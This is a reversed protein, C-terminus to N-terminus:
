FIAHTPHLVGLLTMTGGDGLDVTVLDSAAAQAPTVGLEHDDVFFVNTSLQFVPLNVDTSDFVVLIPLGAGTAAFSTLATQLLASEALPAHLPHNGLAYDTLQELGLVPDTGMVITSPTVAATPSAPVSTDFSGDTTSGATVTPTSIVTSGAPDTTDSPATGTPDVGPGAPTTTDTAATTDTVTTDTTAPTSPDLSSDKASSDGSISGAPDTSANTPAPPAAASPTTGAFVALATTTIDSIDFVHGAPTLTQQVAPLAQDVTAVIEPGGVSGGGTGGGGGGGGTATVAFTANHLLPAPIYSFHVDGSGDVSALFSPQSNGHAAGDTPALPLSDNLLSTLDLGHVNPVTASTDSASADSPPLIATDHAAALLLSSPVSASLLLAAANAHAPDSAGFNPLAGQDDLPDTIPLVALAASMLAGLSIPADLSNADGPALPEGAATSFNGTAGADTLATKIAALFKLFAAGDGSPSGAPASNADAAHAHHQSLLLAAAIFATFVAAPHLYLRKDAVPTVSAFHKSKLISNVVDRLESGYFVEGFSISTAIFCGDIRACHVVVEGTEARCFAFWPDGEDSIGMDPVVGLGARGLIDIVRYFEAL